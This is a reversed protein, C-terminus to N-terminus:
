AQGLLRDEEDRSEEPFLIDVGIALPNGGAIQEIVKAHYSRPWPWQHNIEALSDDDVTVMVIPFAPPRPGRLEFRLDVTRVEPLDLFGSLYVLAFVIGIGLGLLGPRKM